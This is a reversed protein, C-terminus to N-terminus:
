ISGGGGGTNAEANRASFNCAINVSQYLPYQTHIPIQLQM